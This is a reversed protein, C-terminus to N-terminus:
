SNQTLSKKAKAGDHQAGHLREDDQTEYEWDGANFGITARWIFRAETEPVARLLFAIPVNKGVDVGAVAFSDRRELKARGSLSERVPVKPSDNNTVDELEFGGSISLDTIELYIPEDPDRVYPEKDEGMFLEDGHTVARPLRPDDYAM